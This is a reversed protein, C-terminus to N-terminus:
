SSLYVILTSRIEELECPPRSAWIEWSMSHLGKDSWSTREKMEVGNRGEKGADNGKESEQKGTNQRPDM